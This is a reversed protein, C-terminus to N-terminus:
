IHAQIQASTMKLTANFAAGQEKQGEVATDKNKYVYVRIPKVRMEKCGGAGIIQSSDLTNM